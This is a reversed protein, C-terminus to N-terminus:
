YDGAVENGARTGLPLYSTAVVTDSIFRVSGDAFVPFEL